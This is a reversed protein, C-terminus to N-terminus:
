FTVPASPHGNADKSNTKSLNEADVVYENPFINKARVYVSVLDSDTFSSFLGKKHHSVTKLRQAEIETLLGINLEHYVSYIDEMIDKMNKDEINKNRLKKKIKEFISNELNYMVEKIEDISDLRQQPPFKRVEKYQNISKNLTACASIFLDIEKKSNKTKEESASKEGQKIAQTVCYLRDFQNEALELEVQDKGKSLAQSFLASLIQLGQHGLDTLKKGKPQILIKVDDAANANSSPRVRLEFHKLLADMVVKMKPSNPFLCPSQADEKMETSNFFACILPRQETLQKQPLATFINNTSFRNKEDDKTLYLIKAKPLPWQQKKTDYIAIGQPWDADIIKKGDSSVKVRTIRSQNREAFDNPFPFGANGGIVCFASCTDKEESREEPKGKAPTLTLKRAAERLADAAIKEPSKIVIAAAEQVKAVAYAAIGKASSIVNSIAEEAKELSDIGEYDVNVITFIPGNLIKATVILHKSNSDKKETPVTEARTLITLNGKTVPYMKSLLGNNLDAKFNNDGEGVGQILFISLDHDQATKVITDKIRQQEEPKMDKYPIEGRADWTGIYIKEPKGDIEVTHENVVPLSLFFERNKKDLLPHQLDLLPHQKQETLAVSPDSQIPSPLPPLAPLNNSGAASAAPKPPLPPRTASAASKTAPAAAQAPPTQSRETPTTPLPPHPTLLAAGAAPTTPTATSATAAAQQNVPALPAPRRPVPPKRAPTAAPTPPTTPRMGVVPPKPTTPRPPPTILAAGAAKNATNEKRSPAASGAAKNATNGRGSPPLARGTAVSAESGNAKGNATGNQKPRYTRNGKSKDAQGVQKRGKM